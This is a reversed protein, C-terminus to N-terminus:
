TESGERGPCLEGARHRALAQWLRITELRKPEHHSDPERQGVLALLFPKERCHASFGHINMQSAPALDPLDDCLGPIRNNRPLMGSCQGKRDHVHELKLTACLYEIPLFSHLLWLVLLVAAIIGM